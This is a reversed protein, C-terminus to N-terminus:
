IASIIKVEIREAAAELDGDLWIAWGSEWSWLETVTLIPVNEDSLSLLNHIIEEIM